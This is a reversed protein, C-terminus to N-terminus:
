RLNVGRACTDQRVSERDAVQEKNRVWLGPGGAGETGPRRM